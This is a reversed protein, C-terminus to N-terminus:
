ILSGGYRGGKESVSLVFGIGNVEIKTDRAAIMKTPIAKDASSGAELYFFKMGFLECSMAYISPIKPKNRPVLKADGVSRFLM